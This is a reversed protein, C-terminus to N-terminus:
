EKWFPIVSKMEAAFRNSITLTHKGSSLHSISINTRIGIQDIDEAWANYWDVRTYLSDDITVEVLDSLYQKNNAQIYFDYEEDYPVHIRLYKEGIIDSQINPYALKAGDKEMQDRYASREWWNAPPAMQTRYVRADILNPWHMVRYLAIYTFFVATLLVFGSPLIFRSKSINTNFVWLSKQYLSRFTLIDFLKLIPYALYSIIPIKRLTGFSLLDIVYILLSVEICFFLQNYWTENPIFLSPITILFFISIILGIVILVSIVSMYMIIGCWRDVAVIANYLNAGEQVKYTFPKKWNIKNKNIGKRYAFNICVLSLWYARLLLHIIFGITLIKISFMGLIIFFGTGPLSSTRRLTFIFDTFYAPLQWLTFIAGGSILLELNWSNDETEKLWGPLIETQDAQQIM